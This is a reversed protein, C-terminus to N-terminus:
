LGAQIKRKSMVMRDAEVSMVSSLQGAWNLMEYYLRVVSVVTEM